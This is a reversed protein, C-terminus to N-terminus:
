CQPPPPPTYSLFTFVVLPCVLPTVRQRGCSAHRQHWKRRVIDQLFINCMVLTLFSGLAIEVYAYLVLQVTVYEVM